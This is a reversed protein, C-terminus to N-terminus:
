RLQNKIIREYHKHITQNVYKSSISKQTKQAMSYLTEFPMLLVNQLVQTLKKENGTLFLWGNEGDNILEGCGPATSSIVPRGCALAELITRSLGERKSPQILINAQRLLPRVDAHNGVFTILGEKEWAMIESRPIDTPHGGDIQGALICKFPVGEKKLKILSNILCSLGKDYQIRGLYLIIRIKHNAPYPIPRYYTLDIGSGAILAMNEIHIWRQKLFYFYDAKNQFIVQPCKQFIIKCMYGSILAMMKQHTFLFGLGTITPFHPIKLNWSALATAISIKFTFSLMAVPKLDILIKRLEGLMRVQNMGNGKYAHFYKLFYITFNQGSKLRNNEKHFPVIIGIQFGQSKFYHILHLYYHNLFRANNAIFILSPMKPSVSM